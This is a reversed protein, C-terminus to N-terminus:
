TFSKNAILPSDERVFLIDIQNMAGDLHRRHINTIEYSLFGREKMFPLVDHILPAGKNIEILSVELLVASATALLRSAGSM